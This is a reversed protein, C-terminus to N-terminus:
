DDDRMGEWQELIELRHAAAAQTITRRWKRSLTDTLPCHRDRQLMNAEDEMFYVKFQWKGGLKVMFHPPEHDNSWFWAKLGLPKFVAKLAEVEAM